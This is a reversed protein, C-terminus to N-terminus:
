NGGGIAQSIGGGGSAIPIVPSPASGTAKETIDVARWGPMTAPTRQSVQVAGGRNSFWTQIVSQVKAVRAQTENQDATDQIFIIRRNKPMNMMRGSIQHQGYKTLEGNEDFHTSTLICQEEWGADYMPRWINHYLQRSACAFPKPWAENRAYIKENQAQTARYRDSIQGYGFSRQQAVLAGGDACTSCADGGGPYGFVDVQAFTEGSAFTLGLVAVGVSFLQKLM